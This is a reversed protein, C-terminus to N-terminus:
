KKKKVKLYYHYLKDNDIACFAWKLENDKVRQEFEKRKIADGEVKLREYNNAEPTKNLVKSM